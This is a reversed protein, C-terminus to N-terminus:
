SCGPRVKILQSSEGAASEGNLAPLPGNATPDESVSVPFLVVYTERAAASNCIARSEDDYRTNPLLSNPDRQRPLGHVMRGTQVRLFYPRNSYVRADAPLQAAAAVMQSDAAAARRLGLGESRADAAWPVIRALGAVVVLAVLARAVLRVRQDGESAEELWVVGLIISMALMPLLLRFDLETQADAITMSLLLVALYVATYILMVRVYASRRTGVAPRPSRLRAVVVVALLVAIGLVWVATLIGADNLPSVWKAVVSVFMRVDAPGPPHWGLQRNGM